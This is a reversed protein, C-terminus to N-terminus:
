TVRELPVRVRVTTGQGPASTVEVEGGLIIAREAMGRMGLGWAAVGSLSSCGVGDDRIILLLHPGLAALTINVRTARSHRVVNCLAEDVIRSLEYSANVSLAQPWDRV